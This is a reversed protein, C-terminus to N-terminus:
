ARRAGTIALGSHVASSAESKSLQSSLARGRELLRQNPNIENSFSSFRTIAVLFFYKPSQSDWNNVGARHLTPPSSSLFKTLNLM